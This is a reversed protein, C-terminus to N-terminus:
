SHTCFKSDIPDSTRSKHAEPASRVVQALDVRLSGPRIPNFIQDSEVNTM